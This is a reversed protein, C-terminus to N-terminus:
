YLHGVDKVLAHLVREAAEARRENHARQISRELRENHDEIEQIRTRMDKRRLDSEVLMVALAIGDLQRQSASGPKSRIEIRPKNPDYEDWVEYCDQLKNYYVSLWPDGEWGVSAHGERVVRQFEHGMLDLHERRIIEQLTTM